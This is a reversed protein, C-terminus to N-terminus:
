RLKLHESGVKEACETALSMTPRWKSTNQAHESRRAGRIRMVLRSACAREIIASSRALEFDVVRTERDHARKM